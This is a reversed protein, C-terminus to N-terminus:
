DDILVLDFGASVANDNVSSDSFMIFDTKEPFAHPVDFKHQIYSTGASSLTSTHKLQFVQGFLRAKLEMNNFSSAKASSLVGYWSIVYATKGAPVTYITMLTQNNGNNIM